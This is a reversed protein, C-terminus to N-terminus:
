ASLDGGLPESVLSMDRGSRHFMGIKILASIEIMMPLINVGELGIMGSYTVTPDCGTIWVDIGKESCEKSLGSTRIIREPLTGSHYTNLIVDAIDEDLCVKGMGPYPRIVAM